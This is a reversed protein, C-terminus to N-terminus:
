ALFIAKLSPNQANPILDLNFSSLLRAILPLDWIRM